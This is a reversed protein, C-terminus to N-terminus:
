RADRQCPQEEGTDHQGFPADHESASSGPPSAARAAAGRVAGSVRFSTLDYPTGPGAASSWLERTGGAPRSRRRQAAALRAPYGSLGVAALLVVALPVVALARHRVRPQGRWSRAPRWAASEGGASSPPWSPSPVRKGGDHLTGPHTMTRVARMQAHSM